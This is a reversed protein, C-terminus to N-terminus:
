QIMGMARLTARPDVLGAGCEDAGADITRAFREIAKEVAAPNRLGQSYLLAAVGAVHPAAMSTGQYATVAFTDFRPRFGRGLVQYMQGLTLFSGTDESRYTVQAVGNAVDDEDDTDDGGPACIEVYPKFGSYSARKLDRGIAGVTMAGDIDAAYAAPYEVPNDTDGDNGAAITVFAGRSVAYRIADRELPAPGRSGLSLNIVHAGQDAAYRIGAAVTSTLGGANFPDALDDITSSLVKIPMVRVKHAIGAVGTGNGTLQAITGAVHTGHGDLDLPLSDDWVYDRPAVIRGPRVLDAAETFRMAVVGLGDIGYTYTGGEVNLGTDLVAVVIQDSAGDNIDWARPLDLADFNWQREFFEDNPRTAFKEVRYDFGVERVAADGALSARAADVTTGAGVAVHEWGDWLADSRRATGAVALATSRVGASASEHFRVLLRDRRYQAGTVPDTVWRSPVDVPAGAAAPWALPASEPLGLFVAAGGDGTRARGSLRPQSALPITAVAVAVASAVLACARAISM